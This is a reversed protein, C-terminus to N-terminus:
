RSKSAAAVQDLRVLIQGLQRQQQDLAVGTTQLGRLIDARTERDRSFVKGLASRLQTLQESDPISDNLIRQLQENGAKQLTSLEEGSSRINEIHEEALKVNEAVASEAAQTFKEAQRAQENKVIASIQKEAGASEVQFVNELDGIEAKIGEVEANQKKVKEELEKQKEESEALIAEAEAQNEISVSAFQSLYGNQSESLGRLLEKFSESGQDLDDGAAAHLEAFASQAESLLALSEEATELRRKQEDIDAAVQNSRERIEAARDQTLEVAKEAAGVEASKRGSKVDRDIQDFRGQQEIDEVEADLEARRKELGIIKEIESAQKRLIGLESELRKQVSLIKNGAAEEGLDRHSQVLKDLSEKARDQAEKKDDLQGVVGEYADKLKGKILGVFGGIAAGAPGAIAFGTAASSLVNSTTEGFGGVTSILGGLEADYESIEAGSKKIRESVEGLKEAVTTLVQAQGTRRIKVLEASDASGEEAKTAEEDAERKRETWETLEELTALGDDAATKARNLADAHDDTAQTAAETATENRQTATTSRQLQTEAKQLAAELKAVEEAAAERAEAGADPTAALEVLKERAAEVEAKLADYAAKYEEVPATDAATEIAIRIKEDSM